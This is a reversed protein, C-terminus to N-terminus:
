DGIRFIGTVVPSDKKGWATAFAKITLATGKVEIPARYVTTGELPQSGDVTYYVVADPMSCQLRVELDAKFVGPAPTFQPECAADSSPTRTSAISASHNKLDTPEIHLMVSRLYDRRFEHIPWGQYDENWDKLLSEAAQFSKVVGALERQPVAAVLLDIRPANMEDRILVDFLGASPLILEVSSGQKNFERRPQAKSLDSLSSVTYSYTGSYLRAALGAIQVRNGSGLLSVAEDRPIQSESQQQKGGSPTARQEEVASVRKLLDVAIPEPRRYLSPVRFGRACDREAYCEYLVRQGDPLLLTISHERSNGATQLLSGPLIADGDALSKESGNVRWQGIVRWAVGSADSNQGQETFLTLAHLSAALVCLSLMGLRMRPVQHHTLESYM